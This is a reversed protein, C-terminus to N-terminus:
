QESLRTLQSEMERLTAVEEARDMLKDWPEEEPVFDINEQLEEM